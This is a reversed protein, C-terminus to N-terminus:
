EVGVVILTLDDHQPAGGVFENVKELIEKLLADPDMSSSKQVVEQLREFGFIEEKENMAEVIGDTYFLIRDGSSLQIISEAIDDELGVFENSWELNGSSDLKVIWADKKYNEYIESYGAAAYGGDMTEIVSLACDTGSGGFSKQWEIEGQAFLSIGFFLIANLLRLHKLLNIILRLM